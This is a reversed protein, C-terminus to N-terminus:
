RADLAERVAQALAEPVYPKELLRWRLLWSSRSKAWDFRYGSTLVVKLKSSRSALSQALEWGDMGGPMIVDTVVLDINGERREWIRLAEQGNAATLVKYGCRQLVERCLERLEDEDEVIMITENGPPMVKAEGKDKAQPCSCCVAPIFVRFTTGRGAESTVDVWGKHQNVISRVTALGLGTGKGPEKTTFFPEFIRPLVDPPIGEGSDEVALCVYMGPVCERPRNPATESIDLVSTSIVLRGGKPMADRANIALNVIVQEMMAADAMIPLLPETANFELAI